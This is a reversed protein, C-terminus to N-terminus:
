KLIKFFQSFIEGFRHIYHRLSVRSLPIYSRQAIFQRPPVFTRWIFKIKNFPGRNLSLHVLYSLGPFQKNNSVAKMFIKEWCSFRKPKISSLVDEPIPAALFKASFFLSLYVMKELNFTYTEDIVRSWDLRDQYFNVAENIDCLFSLKSLSHTVRLAHESLHILLHHPSMVLAEIGAIKTNEADKWVDEMKINKIYTENPITSNVFHWHIHFSVSNEEPSRYDLSTLYASSFDIDDVSADAPSYGLLMLQKNVHMMDEEKVLLDIDSMPRLAINGYVKEALAAGKLVIVKLGSKKFEELVKGLEEFILTNKTANLYYDKKLEEFVDSPINSCDEKIENLRSYVISSVGNERVKQLFIGWDLGMKEAEVIKHRTREKTVKRCCYILLRDEAIWSL